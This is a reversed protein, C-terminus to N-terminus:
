CNDEQPPESEEERYFYDVEEGVMIKRKEGVKVAWKDSDPYYCPDVLPNDAIVFYVLDADSENIIQHAEGPAFLVIDGGKVPHKGSQDRAFGEGKLFVYMEWQCAHAHYPCNESHGPLACWEVDFPHRKTLDTSDPVRGLAESVQKMTQKFRGGPSAWSESPLNDLSVRNM